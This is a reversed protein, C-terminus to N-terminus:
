NETCKDLSIDVARTVCEAKRVIEKSPTTTFGIATLLEEVDIGPRNKQNNRKKVKRKKRDGKKKNNTRKDKDTSRIVRKSIDLTNEELEFDEPDIEIDEYDDYYGM